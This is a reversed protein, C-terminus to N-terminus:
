GCASDEGDEEGGSKNMGHKNLFCDIYYLVEELIESDCERLIADAITMPTAGAPVELNCPNEMKM